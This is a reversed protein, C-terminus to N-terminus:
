RWREDNSDPRQLTSFTATRRTFALRRVARGVLRTLLQSLFAGAITMAAAVAVFPADGLHHALLAMVELHAGIYTLMLGLGAM